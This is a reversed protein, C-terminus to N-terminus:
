GRGSGASRDRERAWAQARSTLEVAVGLACTKFHLLGWRAALWASLQASNTVASLTTPVTATTAVLPAEM